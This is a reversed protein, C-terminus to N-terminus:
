FFATFDIKIIKERLGYFVLDELGLLLLSYGLLGLLRRLTDALLLEAATKDAAM